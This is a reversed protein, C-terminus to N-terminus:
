YLLLVADPLGLFALLCVEQKLLLENDEDEAMQLVGNPSPSSAPQVKAVRLKSPAGGGEGGGAGDGDDGGGGEGGEAGDGDDGGDGM